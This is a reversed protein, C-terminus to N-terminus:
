FHLRKKNKTKNFYLFSYIIMSSLGLAFGPLCRYIIKDSIDLHFLLCLLTFVMISVGALLYINIFLFLTKNEKIAITRNM